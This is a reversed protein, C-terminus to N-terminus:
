PSMELRGINALPRGIHWGLLLGLLLHLRKGVRVDDELVASYRDGDDEM